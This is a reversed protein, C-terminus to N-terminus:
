LIKVYRLVCRCCTALIRRLGDLLEGRCEQDVVWQGKSGVAQTAEDGGVSVQDLGDVAADHARRGGGLALDGDDDTAAAPVVRGEGAPHAG